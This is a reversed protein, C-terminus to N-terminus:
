RLTHHVSDRDNGEIDTLAVVVGRQGILGTLYSLGNLQGQKEGTAAWNVLDIKQPIASLILTLERRGSRPPRPNAVSIRSAAVPRVRYLASPQMHFLTAAPRM